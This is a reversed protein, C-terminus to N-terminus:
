LKTLYAENENYYNLELTKGEISWAGYTGASDDDVDWFIWIFTDSCIWYVGELLIEWEDEIVSWVMIDFNGNAHFEIGTQAYDLISPTHEWTGVWDEYLNCEFEPKIVEAIFDRTSQIENIVPEFDVNLTSLILEAESRRENQFSNLSNELVRFRSEMSTQLNEILPSVDKSESCGLVVMAMCTLVLFRM